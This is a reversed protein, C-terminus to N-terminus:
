DQVVVHLEVRTGGEPRDGWQIRGHLEGAVMTRIIQTGLGKGPQSGQLGVGDDDVTIDLLEGQREINVWLNGPVEGNRELTFGHEVANSILENLVVALATAQNAGVRGSSGHMHTNVLVGRAAIDGAMRLVPAFVEDFDVHEDVTQSLVQHVLAITGVRRQADHLASRTEEDKARRAQMRLLASVTQLNNKVRHNIERITADKTLLEQERRRLETIDRCLLVSGIAVGDRSLPVARMSVITGRTEIETLWPAKGMIVVPLAEDLRSHDEIVNTVLEALVKGVIQGTIGLRHLNSVANPNAFTVEGETDLLVFGDSLRPTGHRYGTPAGGFPFEGTGVMHLLHDAVEEYMALAQSSVRDGVYASAICLVAINKGEHCVPYLDVFLGSFELTRRRGDELVLPGIRALDAPGSDGVIDDDFFTVATSPRCHAAITFTGDGNRVALLVDAFAVDAIIQWDGVLQHLWEREAPSLLDTRGLINTLTPM